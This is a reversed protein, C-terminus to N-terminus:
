FTLVAKGMLLACLQSIKVKMKRTCFVYPIPFVLPFSPVNCM